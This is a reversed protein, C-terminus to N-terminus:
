STLLINKLLEGRFIALFHDFPSSVPNIHCSMYLVICYVILFVLITSNVRKGNRYQRHKIQQLLVM